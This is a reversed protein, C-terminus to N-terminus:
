TLVELNIEIHTHINIDDTYQHDRGFIARERGHQNRIIPSLGTWLKKKERTQNGRANWKNWHFINHLSLKKKHKKINLLMFFYTLSFSDKTLM